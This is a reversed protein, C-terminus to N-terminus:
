SDTYSVYLGDEFNLTRTGGGVKAVAVGTTAGQHGLGSYYDAGLISGDVFLKFGADGLYGISVNRSKAVYICSHYNTGDYQIFSIVGSSSSANRSDAVFSLWGYQGGPSYDRGRLDIYAGGIASGNFMGVCLNNTYAGCNNINEITVSNGVCLKTEIAVIADQLNNVHAALVDDVGDTKATYSDLSTPYNTSM